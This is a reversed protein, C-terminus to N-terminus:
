GGGSEKRAVLRRRVLRISLFVLAFIVPASWGAVLRSDVAVGSVSLSDLFYKLLGVAYYSIAFISFGEVAQQLRLQRRASDALSKLVGQNQRSQQIDVMTSLLNASRAVRQALEGVRLEAADCTRMAPSLARVLFNTYRQHGDIITEGVEEIRREVIRAYARAGSFQSSHSAAIEEVRASLDAIQHLASERSELTGDDALERMVEVLQPELEQVTSMVARAAPIARMALMRYTEMDLLRQLLRALRRESIGRDVIVLRVFGSADLRFASWVAAGDDSMAGGYLSRAGLLSRAMQYGSPDDVGPDQLVEIHVGVFMDALLEERKSADLFDLATESFPPQSNGPVLLTHSTAETHSEWKMLCSGVEVLHFRSGVAPGGQGHLECFDSINRWDDAESGGGRLSLMHTCRMPPPLSINPRAHWENSLSIRDGRVVPKSDAEGRTDRRNEAM